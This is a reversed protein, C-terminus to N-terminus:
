KRKTWGETIEQRAFDFEKQTLQGSLPIHNRFVLIWLGGRAAGHCPGRRPHADGKTKWLFNGQRAHRVLVNLM